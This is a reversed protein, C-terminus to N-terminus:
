DICEDEGIRTSTTNAIVSISDGKESTYRTNWLFILLNKVIEYQGDAIFGFCSFLTDRAWVNNYEYVYPMGNVVADRMRLRTNETVKQIQATTNNIQLTSFMLIILLFGAPLLSKLKM